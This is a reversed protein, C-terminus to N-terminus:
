VRRRREALLGAVASIAIAPLALVSLMAMAVPSVIGTGANLWMVPLQTFTLIAGMVWGRRGLWLGALASLGLSAPYWISWYDRADWPEITTTLRSVSYWYFTAGMLTALIKTPDIAM